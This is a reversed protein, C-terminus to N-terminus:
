QTRRKFWWWLGFGGGGFLATVAIIKALTNSSTRNSMAANLAGHPCNGPDGKCLALLQQNTDERAKDAATPLHPGVFRDFALAGGSFTGLLVVCAIVFSTFVAELGGLSDLALVTGLNKDLDCELTSGWKGGVCPVLQEGLFGALQQPGQLETLSNDLERMAARLESRIQPWSKDLKKSLFKQAEENTDLAVMFRVYLASTANVERAFAAVVQKNHGPQRVYEVMHPTVDQLHLLNAKLTELTGPTRM